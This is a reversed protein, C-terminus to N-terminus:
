GQIVAEVASVAAVVGQLNDLAAHLQCSTSAAVCKLSEVDEGMLIRLNQGKITAM